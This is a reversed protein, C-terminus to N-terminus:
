IRIASKISTHHFHPRKQLSFSFIKKEINNISSIGCFNM